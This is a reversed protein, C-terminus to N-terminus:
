SGISNKDAYITQGWRLWCELKKTISYNLNLYYRFGKDYFAPISFSYLVDSEYTYIRSNYSDTEFYQLRVNSSLKKRRYNGEMYILFGQEANQTQHNYWLVEIRSQVFFSPTLQDSVNVRLNQKVEDQPYDIVGNGSGDAQKNKNKYRIYMAFQKDPQYNLQVLYDYGRGPANVRYRLWPFQFFDAYASLQWNAVSRIVIGTYIGKENTPSTNENFANGFLSQYEKQINRYLVSVDVKPDVSILAGNIFATSYNKDIAAEGFLHINRYTYSYDVSSNFLNKGSIAYYNYPENRKQLPISFQHAVTNFGVKFFSTEYSVNGGISTLGTKYRNAIETANRYYGSSLLSTVRDITDNAINGSIKKYSAFFSAEINRKQLTIGIGRNFYFEGASRYPVLVPSQRKVSMVGASKGFALSQWQILGQGMNVTYDGLAISKVIGLRRAFFHVSYFDFGKLQAGKFFQEGADKDAVLGYYLLNKYQYRYRLMLHNRDGLYHNSVSTDYGKSKELVRTERLLLDRDGGKLKSLFNDKVSAINGTIVFPLLRRITFLDWTPVAQLEYVSVLKGFLNRYRIFNGIQLDTLITLLQLEAATATNLNVPHKRFYDLQQLLEDNKPNEDNADAINELQQKITQPLDQAFCFIGQFLIM